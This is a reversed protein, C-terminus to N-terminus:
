VVSKRDRENYAKPTSLGTINRINWLKGRYMLPHHGRAFPYQGPPGIDRDYDIHAIDEPTYVEKVPIGSSTTNETAKERYMDTIEKTSLM